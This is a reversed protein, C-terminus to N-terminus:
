IDNTGKFLLNIEYKGPNKIHIANNFVITDQTNSILNNILIYKKFGDYSKSSVTELTISENSFFSYKEVNLDLLNEKLSRKILFKFYDSLDYNNHINKQYFDLEGLNPM